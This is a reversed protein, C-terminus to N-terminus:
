RGRCRSDVLPTLVEICKLRYAPDFGDDIDWSASLGAHALAYTLVRDLDLKLRNAYLQALRNMRESNHVVEGHPWPNVMLNAVEYTREGILGKPDIALWGRPGGDLVNSHHLDGHLPLVDRQTGLLSTAVSASLSLLPHEAARKFLSEFHRDLPVLSQPIPPARREHLKTITGALIKAAETDEGSLVMSVLLRPGAAREMLVAADDAALVRVAGHGDLYKLYDSSHLEDSNPKFVKLMAPASVLRVPLLWSSPTDAEPGDPVAGWKALLAIFVSNIM